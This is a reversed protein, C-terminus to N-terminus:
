LAITELFHSSRKREKKLFRRVVFDLAIKSKIGNEKILYKNKMRYISQGVRLKRLNNANLTITEGKQGSVPSTLECVAVEGQRVELVDKQHIAEEAAFSIQNGKIKAIKGVFLGQHNPRKM